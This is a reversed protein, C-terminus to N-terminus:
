SSKGKPREVYLRRNLLRIQIWIADSQEPYGLAEYISALRTLADIIEEAEGARMILTPKKIQAM